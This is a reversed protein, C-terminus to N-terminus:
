CDGRVNEFYCDYGQPAAELLTDKLSSITKYNFAYDYGLEKLYSVKEDSGACGVVRCGQLIVSINFM